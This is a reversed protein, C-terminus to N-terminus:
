LFHYGVRNAVKGGAQKIGGKWPRWGEEVKPADESDWTQMRRSHGGGRIGPSKPEGM